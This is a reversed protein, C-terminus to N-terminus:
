KQLLFLELIFAESPEENRIQSMVARVSADCNSVPNEFKEGLM